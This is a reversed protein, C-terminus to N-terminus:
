EQTQGLSGVAQSMLSITQSIGFDLLYKVKGIPSKPLVEDRCSFV